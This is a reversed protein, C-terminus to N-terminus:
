NVVILDYSQYVNLKLISQLSINGDHAAENGLM